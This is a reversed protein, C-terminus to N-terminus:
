DTKGTSDREPGHLGGDKEKKLKKTKKEEWKNGRKGQGRGRKVHLVGGEGLDGTEGGELCNRVRWVEGGNLRLGGELINKRVEPRREELFGTRIGGRVLVPDARQGKFVRFLKWDERAKGGL